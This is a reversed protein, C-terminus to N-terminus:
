CEPTGPIVSGGDVSVEAEAQETGLKGEQKSNTLSGVGWQTWDYRGEELVDEEGWEEPHQDRTELDVDQQHLHELLITGSKQLVVEEPVYRREEDDQAGKEHVREEVWASNVSEPRDKFTKLDTSTSCVNM